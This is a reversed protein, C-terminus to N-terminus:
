EKGIFLAPDPGTCLILDTDEFWIGASLQM